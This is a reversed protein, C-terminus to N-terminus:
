IISFLFYLWLIGGSRASHNVSMLEFLGQRSSIKMTGFINSGNFNSQIYTLDMNRLKLSKICTCIGESVQVDKFSIFHMSESYLYNGKMDFESCQISPTSTNHLGTGWHAKSTTVVDVRNREFTM